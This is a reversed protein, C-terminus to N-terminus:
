EHQKARSPKNSWGHMKLAADLCRLRIILYSRIRKFRKWIPNELLELREALIDFYRIRDLLQNRQDQTPNNYDPTIVARGNM